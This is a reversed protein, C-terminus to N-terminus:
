DINFKGIKKILDKPNVPKDLLDLCGISLCLQEDEVKVYSSQIFIKANSDMKFIEVAADFGNLEPMKIDMLVLYVGPNTKYLEVAELGNKAILITAGTDEYVETYYFQVSPEDDAIILTKGNLEAFEATNSEQNSM